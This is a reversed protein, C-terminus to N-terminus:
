SCLIATFRTLLSWILLLLLLLLLLPLPLPLLLLLPLLDTAAAAGESRGEASRHQRNHRAM